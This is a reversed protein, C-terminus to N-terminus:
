HRRGPAETVDPAAPVEPSTGGCATLIMSAIVLLGLLLMSRNRLM